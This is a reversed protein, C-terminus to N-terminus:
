GPQRHGHSAAANAAQDTTLTTGFVGYKSKEPVGNESQYTIFASQFSVGDLNVPVAPNKGM